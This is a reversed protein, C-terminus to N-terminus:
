LVGHIIEGRKIVAVADSVGIHYPLYALGPIDFLTFDCVKGVEISGHSSARDLAAAGNLTAATLAEEPSFQMGIVSLSIALQMNESM